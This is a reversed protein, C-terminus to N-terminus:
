DNASYDVEITIQGGNTPEGLLTVALDYEVMPDETDSGAGIAYLEWLAKGRDDDSLVAEDFGDARALPTDYDVAAQFLNIDLAAGDHNTGSLYLGLDCTNTGTWDGDTTVRIDTIRDGSKFTMMRVIDGAACNDTGDDLDAFAIKKRMRAHNLGVRNLQMTTPLLQDDLGDGDRGLLDSFWTAM